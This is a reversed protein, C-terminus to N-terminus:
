FGEVHTVAVAEATATTTQSAACKPAAGGEHLPSNAVVQAHEGWAASRALVTASFTAPPSRVAPVSEPIRASPSLDGVHRANRLNNSRKKYM